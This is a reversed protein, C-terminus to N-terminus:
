ARHQCDASHNPRPTRPCCRRAARKIEARKAGMRDLEERSFIDRCMKFMEGEEEDIHHEINERAVTFKAGWQEDSVPTQELEELVLDVVHHEEYAELTLEKAKPHAKLAPYLIQEEMSEHAVLAEKLKEFLETRTKEGRETTSEGDALMQKVRDHDDKLLKLADM